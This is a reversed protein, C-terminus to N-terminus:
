TKDGKKRTSSNLAEDNKYAVVEFFDEISLEKWFAAGLVQIMMIALLDNYIHHDAEPKHHHSGRGVM